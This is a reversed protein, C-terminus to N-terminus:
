AEFLCDFRYESTYLEPDQAIITVKFGYKKGLFRFYDKHFWNGMINSDLCLSEMLMFRRKETNFFEWKKEEDLVGGVFLMAEDSRLRVVKELLGPFVSYGMHQIVEYMYLKKSRLDSVALAEISKHLFQVNRRTCTELAVRHLEQNREVGIVSKVLQSVATTVLGNGSGLDMVSDESDLRLAGKIQQAILEISDKEVTKGEVTKGVQWFLDESDRVRQSYYADTQKM